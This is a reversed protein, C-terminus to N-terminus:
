GLRTTAIADFDQNEVFCNEFIFSLYGEVRSDGVNKM